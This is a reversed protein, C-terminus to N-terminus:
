EAAPPQTLYPRLLVALEEAAPRRVITFHDAAVFALRVGGGVLATWGLSADAGDRAPSETARVLLASGAYPVGQYRRLARLNAAFTEFLRRMTAFDLDPPVLAAARAEGFVQRLLDEAGLRRLDDRAALDIAERRGGLGWLDRAFHSIQAPLDLDDAAAALPAPVDIMALLEAREGAAALQRAMEFAVVGGMSWGALAYPGAPQAARLAALYCAAMAEVSQPSAEDLQPSQLGYLPQDPGLSRALDGYCLVEGGVPHVCFLPRRGGGPQVEVLVQRREPGRERRLVGALDEITPAQFLLSIPLERGFRARLRSMLRPALLSHGGLAFFDDRVGIPRVSLLDEWIRVLALEIADRPPSPRDGGSPAAEPPVLARLARRDLKGNPTLPLASLLLFSAPIMHAPLRERLSSRLREPDCGEDVAVYAALAAPPGGGATSEATLVAAQRVGPQEALAAEIEGLEIRFGRIKVQQDVRGSTQLEAAASWRARDGTRYLRGGPAGSFPDPVFREATLAPRHLYGRALGAGGLYLEGLAGLPAPQMEGDLVYARTKAIPRGIAPARGSGPEIRAGTSYVTDETPGYFNWMRGVVGSAQVQGAAAGTLPEGGLNATLPGAPLAGARALEAAASPVMSMLRVRDRAPHDALALADAALIVTGGWSLPVFLEFVSVDFSLSTSALTGALEQPSFVERAWRVFTAASAHSVAVGKPRGTSGSTYIVYALNPARADGPLPSAKERAIAAAARDIALVRGGGWALDAAFRQDTLLLGAASDKLMLELRQRPYAVDLPLYAGGAKLVALVAVVMEASRELAIGVVREPGVGLRRLHRALRNARRELAAYSVARGGAILAEAHPTRRAQREFSAHLTAAAQWDPETDNWERLLQALEPEALWPLRALPAEPQAVAAALLRAFHGSLREVTTTDFLDLSHEWSGVYGERRRELGLTLDFKALAGASGMPELALGALEAPERPTNQLVLMAQFLPAHALSRQPALEEVLREFPVSQHAHASLVVERARELLAAFSAAESPRLRLVLTNVFFGILGEIEVHTRGAIPTGVAVDGQGSYRDLLTAFGALLVMFPTAGRQRALAELAGSLEGGLALDRSGGRFSQVAPRPRDAPLELVPPLGALQDRWYALEAALVEGALWGRQWSAFDAYQVPLEPLPPPPPLAAPGGAVAAAYLATVERMLLGLSWGDSAVHHMTVLAAHEEAGVRVLSARLMPDRALDFPRAAEQAALRRLLADRSAPGLAALDVVPLALPAPPLIVQAPVGDAAAFITRLVEHRRVVATLAAALAPVQLPGVVRLALPMNYLPSGPELQALFWLRQQAFSLPLDARRAAPVLPPEVLGTRRRVADEIRRALGGLTPAAFLERLAIEIGLASRLRAIVRTALLSHGGLAFFNDHIGARPVALVDTWIAAVIEEVPTRPAVYADEGAAAALPLAALARRDVKGNASQPLAALHLYVAPLMYEPLLQRLFRRLEAPTAAAAVTGDAALYAVLRRDVEGSAAVVERVLVAAQRVGPCSALAAEIEGLEIRFGRVKVQHDLRGLYELIGEATWRVLDGTRYLRRGPEGSFPDPVFRAATLAPLGLYGRALGAGGVYLEGAVGIPLPSGAEGAVFVRVNPLPRGIAPRRGGPLIPLVTTDVTCESPGYVNFFRTGALGCLREWLVPEVVEGGVLVLGPAWGGDTGMGADLLARLQVPTCDLVDVRQRALHARLAAADARMAEPVIDLRRGRALQIVQKVAGDFFFPANVAVALGGGAGAYIATELAELLNALAGHSVLIGKPTGTSGSTYIAYALQGPSVALGLDDAGADAGAASPEDLSELHIVPATCAPLAAAAAGRTLVVAPAADQLMQALRAAPQDPDLVVWAGGAKLAALLAAVLDVSREMVLVVPSERRVGSRRLLRALRNARRNLGGFSLQERGCVAAVADPRSSAQAEFREHLSRGGSWAPPRATDSWERLLQARESEALWSLGALPAEPAAAAATLLRALHGSLRDVTTADFLELSYSWGGGYGNRGRELALTLDFKAAAGESELPALALGALDASAQPTNQLVLMVQFLPAHALSREPALEEVLREFPVAQHAHAELVVERVRGLLGAFSAAAAPRLRLALTNVFFGILSELEVHTRGAIPTGVTVEGQGACRDLLVAFGALLVMFPTAGARRALGEVAASLEAGLRLRRSGGRFRAVAPRPRDVPLELVPPAGALAGRWYGLEAELVEGSLWRRQWAAFDGYQIPLEPLLPPRGAALARYITTIERVLVGVSWGDSVVHHMTFLLAHRRAALRALGARLLPGRGLDFPAGAEERALRALEAERRAAPLAGLDFVPLELRAEPEIVQVPRGAIEAFRTRLSEHRRVVEVFSARLLGPSLDGEARLFLPINYAASGPELQDLFWLRQQAFSLPLGGARSARGIPPAAAAAGARREADVRGALGAVTPEEFLARLPLEVALVDRVRAIVQTALLSHGGLAFFDDGTGVRERGLVEEWIAALLEETPTRPAGTPEGGHEPAAELRALARRDVKGNANLPLEALFRFAAPVMYDPLRRRLFARLEAAEPAGEARAVLYATLRRDEAAPGGDRGARRPAAAHVVVAAERLAPHAALAAEIEGLEIRFGRLKVQGDRRGIFEIRGDPLWRAMDGTRYLRGGGDRATLPDPIFREATLGPQGLYSRALGSGAICLEGAMGVPVPRLEADLLYIRANAIPRGIAPLAGGAPGVAGSSAVVTAETPGYDNVLAFPLAASPRTRLRDGGTLLARLALPRPWDLHIIEEAVPTPVFALTIGRSVLLDRLRAPDARAEEGVIEVRAGSVLYPWLEWISADFAPSALQTARDASSVEFAQRHWCVLNSLARHAVAVGKPRGTSGSTYIVYALRDATADVWPAEASEAYLPGGQRELLVVRARHEPLAALLSEDTVLVPTGTDALILGLREQPSRLDLPVYAGGAKLVALTATVWRASRELFIGVPVDPGVGLAILGHALRNAQRDLEGYSIQAEADSLAIAHPSLTAQAAFLEHACPDSPYAVATENWERVVQAREADGLWPLEALPAEPSAVGAALLRTLHGGLRQITSGDFLDVDHELTGRFGDPGREFSLTLDFKATAGGGAPLALPALALAELEVAERSVNQLVLMVQFLPSHALSREPALEEVLREFPVAQHAYAGLVVERSRALLDAFSAAAAPRLRLVLTNVFFGILGELEVHTRGAIPTGVAVEGQGACRDLLAGFGALLVMFPTAGARRALGEVAASLEADLRVRRLGGRFRAVAPRPRDTPLELLPPLGALAQRWYGLEAELVAGSLWRRQWVAYDAYQLPLGPLVPRDGSAGSAGSIGEIADISAARYLATVERVLLGMSWGDSAIHHMTMLLAHEAAGLRLLSVRLLPGRALDFPRAGEAGALRLMETERWPTALASLDVARLAFPSAPQVIQVPEGAVAAFVTRLVEHRRVVEGLAATLAAARLPGSVRLAVPLNYLASGPELQDLFWLRQQAFSLPPDGRRALAALPPEALATPTRRAREIRGAFEGLTPAAFLERLAVEVGLVSRVRAIVRTALLSHGGLDFFNAGAGIRAVGLVDAWIAAVLEEVPTRPPLEAGAAAEAALPLAALARRDVKGNPSLPLAALHVYSAPQMYDPVRRRLFDRWTAADATAAVAPDAAVYAVLRQDIEGSAAPVQRLLVAAQRVAPHAELAAEIEGPEIRFGRLKVQQDVRGLYQLEGEATWRVRDGTRYLRGGVETTSSPDPVFREATLEPRGIYGRALAMGGLWLEGAVGAPCPRGTGDVVLSRLNRAPRGLPVPGGTERLRRSTANIAAETPGYLNVLEAGHRSLWADRPEPRLEEGGCYLRRLPTCAALGPEELLLGLLTPVVQLLTIREAALRAALAPPDRELGPEGIVLCAGALLPAYREWVAADFGVPTKHLMRDAAALPYAALMWEMQNVIARHSVMVGKPRGTSGSTFLVYALNEATPKERRRRRRRGEGAASDMGGQPPVALVAADRLDVGPPVGAAGAIVVAPRADEIMAALRGAPQDPDLPLFGGGAKLVGLEAIVLAPSRKLHLGVRADPGVGLALLREAMREARADLEAYTLAEGGSVVAVADPTRGAQAAFLEQLCREGAPSATDSWERQLQAAEAEALWPLEALPARPSAVAAALLRALHGGLRDITTGDFLDLSHELSGLFGDPRREFTLTLDFKATTGASALPALTLEALEVVERPVNQLALMVQFLPSRALSRQPALEEVLREFPVAQHAHAGLLVERASGVLDAFSAAAAPRLRLVLTNVFFGILSELEVHTRGAIPTGVSVEGQGAYRDLLAAFGALLVMFPTAGAQRALTEVAASLEAGLRMRRRGGRFRAVAPRPRDTPLELVPPVGALAGRWYDLEAELVEGSLWQRQWAAFDGYQIPLEPLLPPLGAALAGYVTTIERVLVGVSWGDSVVHHMTFLVAHQREALRALRVRLLPGRGLDFPQLAEERTLRELEGERRTAPLSRLDFVPLDLRAEAEIVQVPHGPQDAPEVFRTRLSEHRRVVAALSARLLGPVLVGEVRMPLPLNYVASGPELQDLFWLRQQAFSLPLHGTRAAPSLPPASGSSTAREAAAALGAATPAEFLAKLPLEVGLARRVRAIVQTALLSHGGLQFFDDTVGVRSLGLVEELIGTLVGEAPTRPPTYEGASAEPSLQLAQLARRDVKGTPSRPLEALLVFATPVLYDPLEARLFDRLGAPALRHGPRAVVCAILRHSAGAHEAATVVAAQEVGPHVALAAEIEGPEVRFGRIKVQQDLRGLFELEGPAAFRALDGSRYLREGPSEGWPDPVFREATLEPRHLYGRALPGGLCLEGPAGPPLLRLRRDLVYARCGPLSRGIPVARGGPFAALDSCTAVVTAETPGYTNLLRVGAVNRRWAALKDASAQEGGIIVLRLAAPLEVEGAAIEAVLEHWFATPLDLVTIEWRRCAALFAAVSGLMAESRLVLTGGRLLCPYIEEVSADFAISAFQLVRDAPSVGYIETAAETYAALSRHSVMVGKPRGSSGSTYIVYAPQEASEPRPARPATADEPTGDADLLVVRVGRLALAPLLRRQTALVPSTSSRYVDELLMELRRPPLRPDIPVYAAGSKLIGLLGIVMEPSREAVLAVLAEDGVAEEGVPLLALRRALLDARRDLEGYTLAAGELTVAVADPARAAQEAFSRHVAARGTTEAPAAARRGSWELVQSSEAATLLPLESLPSGPADLAGGLLVEFRQLLREITTGDFLDTSYTLVGSIGEEHHVLSLTLDFKASEAPSGLERVELGPLRLPAPSAHAVDFMVQFLPSHSLSRQPQLEEVLREFPLDQHAHAALTTERVRGLLERISPDGALDTRLVLTNVFFGILPELEERNRGVIPTGISIDDEGSHRSLLAQFVTLLVMFPTALETRGLSVLSRSLAAPLRLSRSSGRQSLAAPRPRDAPLDLFPPAGALRDRWYGLEAALVEGRLWGRQWLAFDAYQIPLEALPSPRGATLAAYLLSLERILIGVSWGDAVIHHVAALMAHEAAGLRVVLWRVLPGRALDFPRVADERVLAALSEERRSRALGQLDVMALPLAAAADVVQIPEGDLSQFTTRLTAHRRVIEALAGAFAPLDMDGDLRLSLPINYAGSGPELQDLFWLRQQAFSLPPHDEGRGAVSPAAAPVGASRRAREVEPALGAITPREFLERLAIEVGFVRRVRSIVRTALLSHGGLAFFDDATDVRELGLVEEWIAVLLEETPTRPASAPEGDARGAEAASALRALARRDVKGNANLPLEGLFSFVAPVMYDPLRQRLFARLELGSPPEGRRGVLYAVLRKDGAALDDGDLGQRPMSAHVVVAAERLAPHAALAAEIEGLEIRFGRLKVQGDRRGMFEIRGDPLWRAMDGTRYLRSGPAEGAGAIPCPVFREATLEPRDLYGRALGDGGTALEGVVGVPVAGGSADLLYVRTNAIPRGLPVTAGVAAPDGLTQCCTFTTNETPGYGNVLRTAPLGGLARVVHPLSLADGGTLLQRLPSLSELHTEVAQHFLGATLWLITVGTEAIRHGLEELSVPGPPPIVLRGGNLLAGWIELTSADFSPSALQLFVEDAGLDAFAAGQVLRVVGRHMVAVGKPVGTSGSTYMVYALSDATARRAPAGGSEPEAPNAAADLLVVEAQHGPLAALLREETVLVPAATDALILRLREKPHGPDLPVYAGGAKLVALIATVLGASRALFIGVAVEPGVGLTILRDALRSARRDLEGYSIQEGAGSPASLAIADPSLAAQAAFREDISADRPYAAATQNWERVVQAREADGLLPLEDVRTALAGEPGVVAGLLNRLHGALRAVTAADFLDTSYEFTAPLAGEQEHAVLNLDFKSSHSPLHVPALQLGAVDVAARPTNQWTFMVQFLPTDGGGRDPQLAAVVSEFPLDQHAQAEVATERVQGLLEGMSPAGAFRARLVLTNVFFGILGEIEMRVRNAIPSGVVVDDQGSYRYLLTQWVALLVTFLTTQRQRALARLAAALDGPIEFRHHAGRSSPRAPRPRDTPLELVAPAGALQRRWFGLQSELVEGRVYDRQWCAFDAYQLPLPPLPSPAPLRGAQFTPYLAVLERVLVAMSWGDAVIHHVVLAIVHHEPALRLLVARLLPGVRLDFPREVQEAALRLAQAEGGDVPLGGLDIVPLEVALEDLVVQAPEGDAAAFVTRLIEHRRVVAALAGRVAGADVPGRLRLVASVHYGSSGPQLQDLLWLRQQAFSLPCPSRVMRPPITQLAAVHIGKKKLLLALLKRRDPPSVATESPPAMPM